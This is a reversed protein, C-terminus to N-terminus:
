CELKEASLLQNEISHPRLLLNERLECFFFAVIVFIVIHVRWENGCTLADLYLTQGKREM